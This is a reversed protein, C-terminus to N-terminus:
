RPPFEFEAKAGTKSLVLYAGFPMGRVAYDAILVAAATVVFSASFPVDVHDGPSVKASVPQYTSVVIRKTSGPSKTM